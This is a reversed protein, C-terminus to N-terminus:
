KNMWGNREMWDAVISQWRDRSILIFGHEGKDFITMDVPVEAHRLAEFFRVSNDVDVVMDDASQLILTPPTQKTVHLENSFLRIQETSPSSGLLAKRTLTNTIEADMSIVPYILIMFDPRLDVEHPNAVYAKDFHTALSSALHGGASFGIIGVRTPDLNWEKARERVVIMAHQADQLPGISKDVMTTDSPLRYKVVFAAIGHDQFFQGIAPGEQVWTLGVYGGGPFILISAGNAKAKAPLFVELTPRSVKVLSGMRGTAEEDPTAKSNPIADSGYLPISQQTPPISSRVRDMLKASIPPLDPPPSQQGFTVGAIIMEM